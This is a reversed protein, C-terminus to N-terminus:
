MDMTKYNTHGRLHEYVMAVCVLSPGPPLPHAAMTVYHSGNGQTHVSTPGLALLSSHTPVYGRRNLPNLVVQCGLLCPVPEEEEKLVM